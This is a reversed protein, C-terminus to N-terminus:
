KGLFKAINLNHEELSQAYHIVGSPDHLYFWYPSQTNELVAKISGLGPNSIPSPPLGQYKYTNFPSNIELDQKTLDPWWDCDTQSPTCRANAVTYQVSADVQLPWSNDIRKLLIGAVIPREEDTVTERELLSALTVVENTSLKATNSKLIESTKKDFTSRLTNFVLEPSSDIPVLYTDPFLYGESDSTLSLFQTTFDSKSRDEFSLNQLFIDLVEEKRKGEPVTIWIGSPGKKLQTLLNTLPQNKSLTYQGAKIQKSTNTIQTYLKFAFASRIFGEKELKQGIHVAGSGKTIIFSFKESSGSPPQSVNTWWLYPLIILLISALLLLALLKKM